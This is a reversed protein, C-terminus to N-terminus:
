AVARLRPAANKYAALIAIDRSSPMAVRYLAALEIVSDCIAALELPQGNQYDQLMSTKFPGIELGLKALEDFDFEVRAGYSAAALLGEGFVKRAIELLSPTGFIDELTADCVVSLPNSVLNAIVKTWLPDRIRAGITTSIRSTNLIRALWEVRPTITNDIEGITLRFPYLSRSVGFGIREAAIMTVAGVIQRAPFFHNLRGSPDVANVTRGAFRGDEGQFYWFPIGNVLPVIVTDDSVLPWVAEGLQTLDQAKACLFLIDATKLEDVTGSVVRAKQVGSGDVLSIGNKQIVALNEGRALLNVEYGALSLRLALAIGIAGAGAVCIRPEADHNGTLKSLVATM